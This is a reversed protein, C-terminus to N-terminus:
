PYTYGNLCLLPTHCVSPRVDQWPMTRAICVRQATLVSTTHSSSPSFTQHNHQAMKVSHRRTVSLRVSLCVDQSLMTRAACLMARYFFNVAADLAPPADYFVSRYSSTTADTWVHSLWLPRRRQSVCSWDHTARRRTPPRANTM